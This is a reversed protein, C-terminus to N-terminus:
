EIRRLPKDFLDLSQDPGHNREFLLRFYEIGIWVTQICQMNSYFVVTFLYHVYEQFCVLAYHAHWGEIFASEARKMNSNKLLKRHQNLQQNSFIMGINIRIISISISRQMISCLTSIGEYSGDYELLLWLLIHLGIDILESRKIAGAMRYDNLLDLFIASSLGAWGICTLCRCFQGHFLWPALLAWVQQFFIFSLLHYAIFSTCPYHWRWHLLLSLYGLLKLDFLLLAFRITLICWCLGVLWLTPANWWQLLLLKSIGSNWRWSIRRCLKHSM